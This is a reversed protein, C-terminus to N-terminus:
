ESALRAILDTAIRVAKVGDAGNVRPESRTRCCSLFHELEMKLPERTKIYPSETITETRYGSQNLLPETQGVGRRQVIIEQQQYDLSIYADETTVNMTRVKGHTVHSATTTVLVNDEFKFLAVAHDIAESRPSAGSVNAKELDGPLLSNAVDIDHIMLDFVVSEESLHDSFPGLRHAEIAYVEKMELIENLTQVAPNFREIHGVQLVVDHERAAAVIAEADEVSLALPKEVLLDLGMAACEEAVQRHLQNPVAVTVARAKEIDAVRDFVPVGYEETIEEAREPDPEVVGVLEAEPLGDCVRIHNAGMNGGGVVAVPVPDRGSM